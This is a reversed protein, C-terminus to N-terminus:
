SGLDQCSRHPIERSCQTADFGKQVDKLADKLMRKTRSVIHEIKENGELISARFARDELMRDFVDGHQLPLKLCRLREHMDNQALEFDESTRELFGDIDDVHAQLIKMVEDESKAMNRALLHLGFSMQAVLKWLPHFKEGPKQKWRGAVVGNTIHPTSFSPEVAPQTLPSM